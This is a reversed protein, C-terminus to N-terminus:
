SASGAASGQPASADPLYRAGTASDGPTAPRVETIRDLCEQQWVTHCVLHFAIGVDDLEYQVQDPDIPEGCAACCRGTGYGALVSNPAILPLRGDALRQQVRHLLEGKTM